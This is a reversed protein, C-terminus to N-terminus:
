PSEELSTLEIVDGILCGSPTPEAIAVALWEDSFQGILCDGAIEVAISTSDAPLEIKSAPATHSLSERPFGVAVLADVILSLEGRATGAGSEQLTLEFIPLNTEAAGGPVFEPRPEETEVPPATSIIASEEAPPANAPSSCGAGLVIAAM